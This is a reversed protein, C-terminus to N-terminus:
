FSKSRGMEIIIDWLRGADEAEEDMAGVAVRWAPATAVPLALAVPEPAKTRGSIAVSQSGYLSADRLQVLRQFQPVDHHLHFGTM